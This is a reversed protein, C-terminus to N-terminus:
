PQSNKKRTTPLGAAQRAAKMQAHLTLIALKVMGPHPKAFDFKPATTKKNAM